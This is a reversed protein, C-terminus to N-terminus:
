PLLGVTVLPLWICYSSYFLHRQPAYISYTEEVSVLDLNSELLYSYQSVIVLTSYTLRRAQDYGEYQHFQCVNTAFSDSDPWFNEDEINM